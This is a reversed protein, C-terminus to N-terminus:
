KVLNLQNSLQNLDFNGLDDVLIYEINKHQRGNHHRSVAIVQHGLDALFQILASGIFGSAGTVLIKM